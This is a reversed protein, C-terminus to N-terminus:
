INKHGVVQLYLIILGTYGQKRRSNKDDKQLPLAFFGCAKYPSRALFMIGYQNYVGPSDM